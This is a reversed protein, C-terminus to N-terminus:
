RPTLAPPGVTNREIFTPRLRYTVAAVEKGKGQSLRSLTVQALAEGLEGTPRAMTTLGALLAAPDNDFGVVSLDGPASIGHSKAARLLGIAITDNAAVIATPRDNVPLTLWKEFADVGDQLHPLKETDDGSWIWQSNREIEAAELAEKYGAIRERVWDHGTPASAFGIRHHGRSILHRTAQYMGWSSDFYVQSTLGSYNRASCIIPHVGSDHLLSLACNITGRDGLPHIMLVAEAGDDIAEKAMVKISCPDAGLPSQDRLDLDTGTARMVKEFAATVSYTWAPENERGSEPIETFPAILVVRGGKVLPAPVGRLFTGAQPKRELIGEQELADLVPRLMTRGVGMAMALERESPLRTGVKFTPQRLHERLQANLDNATSPKPM